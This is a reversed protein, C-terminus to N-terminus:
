VRVRVAAHPANALVICSPLRHVLRLLEEPASLPVMNLQEVLSPDLGSLLYIKSQILTRVLQTAALTDDPKVKRIRFIAERPDAVDALTQVGQGPEATLDCCLAIAGGEEVLPAAAAVARGVNQWTQEARGGEIGAVVLAARDPVSCGWAADYLERARSEVAAPDGALVGLLRDGGAPGAQITFTVGLLWAVEAVEQVLHATHRGGRRLADGSRYRLVSRQNSFTPFLVGHVGFYGAATRRRVAGIPVVVDAETLLRNLFVTEGSESRALYALRRPDAPDHEAVTVHSKWEEPWAQRLDEVPGGCRTVLVSIGDPEVGAEVLYAITAAVITAAQPVDGGLALVVRDGPTTGRSLPPYDLPEALAAAVAAAAADIAPRRPLDCDALLAGEPIDLEVSLGAGYRLVTEM